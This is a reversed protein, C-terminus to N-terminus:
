KSRGGYLSSKVNAIWEDIQNELTKLVLGGQSDYKIEMPEIIKAGKRERQCEAM